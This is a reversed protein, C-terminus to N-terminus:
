GKMWFQGLRTGVWDRRRTWRTQLWVRQVWSIQVRCGRHGSRRVCSLLVIMVVWWRGCLLCSFLYRVWEELDAGTVTPGPSVEKTVGSIPKTTLISRVRDVGWALRKADLATLYESRPISQRPRKSLPSQSSPLSFSSNADVGILDRTQVTVLPASHLPSEPDLVVQQRAEPSLLSVTILM